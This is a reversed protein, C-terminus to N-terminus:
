DPLKPAMKGTNTKHATRYMEWLPAFADRVERPITRELSGPEEPDHHTRAELYALQLKYFEETAGGLEVAEALVEECRELDLYDM